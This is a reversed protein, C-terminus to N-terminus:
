KSRGTHGHVLGRSSQACRPVRGNSPLWWILILANFIFKITCVTLTTNLPPPCPPRHMSLQRCVPTKYTLNGVKLRSDLSGCPPRDGGGGKIRAQMCDTYLKNFPSVCGRDPLKPRVWFGALRCSAATPVQSRRSAGACQFPSPLPPSPPAWCVEQARRRSNRSCRM